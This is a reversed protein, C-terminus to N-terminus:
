IAVPIPANVIPYIENTATDYYFQDAIVDDACDVWFLPPAIEFEADCIEAVRCSNAYVSYIPTIPNTETWGSVYKISSENPSILAKKM